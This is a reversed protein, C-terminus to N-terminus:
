RIMVFSNSFTLKFYFRDFNICVSYYNSCAIFKGSLHIVDGVNFSEITTRISADVPIFAKIKLYIIRTHDQDDLRAVATIEKVTYDTTHRQTSNHVYCITSIKAPM